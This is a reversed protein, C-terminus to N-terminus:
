LTFSLITGRAVITHGEVLDFGAGAKLLQLPCHDVPGLHANVDKGCIPPDSFRIRADWGRQKSQPDEDM